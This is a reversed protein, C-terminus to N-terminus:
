QGNIDMGDAGDVKVSNMRNNKNHLLPMKVNMGSVKHTLKHTHTSSSLFAFFHSILLFSPFFFFLLDDVVTYCNCTVKKSTM